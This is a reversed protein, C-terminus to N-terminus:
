RREMVPAGPASPAAVASRRGFREMAQELDVLTRRGIKVRRLDGRTTAKNIGTRSLGTLAGFQRVTCFQAGPLPMDEPGPKRRPRRAPTASSVSL